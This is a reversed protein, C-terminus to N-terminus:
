IKSILTLRDLKLGYQSNKCECEIYMNLLYMRLYAEYNEQHLKIMKEVESQIKINLLITTLCGNGEALRVTNDPMVMNHFSRADPWVKVKQEINQEMDTEFTATKITLIFYKTKNQAVKEEIDVVLGRIQEM